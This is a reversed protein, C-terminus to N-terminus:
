LSRSYILGDDGPMYYDKLRAELVFACAEYFQQTPRYQPRGATQVYLKQAGQPMIRAVVQGVLAVGYGKHQEDPDVCLWYIEYSAQTCAVKGYCVYGVTKGQDQAFIFVYDGTNHHDIAIQALEAAVPIEDPSEDFFGTRSLMDCILPIDQSAITERFSLM